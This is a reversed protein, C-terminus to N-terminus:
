LDTQRPRGNRGRASSAARSALGAMFIGAGFAALPYGLSGRSGRPRREAGTRSPCCRIRGASLLRAQPRPRWRTVLCTGVNQAKHTDRHPTSAVIVSPANTARRGSGDCGVPAASHTFPLAAGSITLWASRSSWGRLRVLGLPAASGPQCRMLQSSASSMTADRSRASALSWPGSHTANPEADGEVEAIDRPAM